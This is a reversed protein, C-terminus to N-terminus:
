NIGGDRLLRDIQRYRITAQSLIEEQDLDSVQSDKASTFITEYVTKKDTTAGIVELYNNLEM